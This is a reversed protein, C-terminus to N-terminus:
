QPWSFTAPPDSDAVKQKHRGEHDKLRDCAYMGSAPGDNDAGDNLSYFFRKGCLEKDM